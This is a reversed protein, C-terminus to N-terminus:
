DNMRKVNYMSGEFEIQDETAGWYATLENPGNLVLAHSSIHLEDEDYLNTIGILQFEIKNGEAPLAIMRPQNGLSCYHDLNLQGHDLYYISVMENPKGVFFKEIVAHGGSSITYTVFPEELNQEVEKGLRVGGVLYWDGVLGKIQEYSVEPDIREATSNLRDVSVSDKTSCGIALSILSIASLLKM